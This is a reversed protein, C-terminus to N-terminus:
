GIKERGDVWRWAGNEKGATILRGKATFNSQTMWVNWGGGVDERKM